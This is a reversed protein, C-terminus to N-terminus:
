DEAKFGTSQVIARYREFSSKVTAAFQEPTQVDAETGFKFLADAGKESSVVASIAANARAVLEPPTKAPALFGSWDQFVVDKFGLETMTPVNPTARSRATGSTALIRLKGEAAHPLVEALPTVVSALHGGLVDVVSPAGGKYSILPLTIGAARAFMVGTFHQSSGSPGGFNANNPNAKVWAIFGALTTVSPPVAQGVSLAMVGKSTPAVPVFDRLTDYPVSKYVHPSIVMPFAPTYLLTSGDAPRGKVYEVGIRGAAGARNEVVVNEAYSGRLGEGVLRAVGDTAGGAPFPVVITVLKLLPPQATQAQARGALWASPLLGLAAGQVFSRRSTM